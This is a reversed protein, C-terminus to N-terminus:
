SPIEDGARIANLPEHRIYAIYGTIYDIDPLAHETIRLSYAKPAEKETRGM